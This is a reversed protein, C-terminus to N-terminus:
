LFKINSGIYSDYLPYVHFDIHNENEEVWQHLGNGDVQLKWSLLRSTVGVYKVKILRNFGNKWGLYTYRSVNIDSDVFLTPVL